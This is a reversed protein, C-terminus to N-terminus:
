FVVANQFLFYVPIASLRAAGHKPNQAAKKQAPIAAAHYTMDPDQLLAM